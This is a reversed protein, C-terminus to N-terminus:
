KRSMEFLWDKIDSEARHSLTFQDETAYIAKEEATLGKQFEPYPSHIFPHQGGAYEKVTVPVGAKKLVEQYATSKQSIEDASGLSFFAPALDSSVTDPLGTTWPCLLIQGAVSFTEEDAAAIAAKAALHGGASHGIVYFQNTDFKYTVCNSIFGDKQSAFYRMTDTIEEVSYTIPKTDLKTYNVSVIAVSWDEAWHECQSDMEDADGFMFGGGHMNFLVTLSRGDYQSPFYLNCEVNKKGQREVIFRTGIREEDTKQATARKAANEKRMNNVFATEAFFLSIFLIALVVQVAIFAKWFKSLEKFKM